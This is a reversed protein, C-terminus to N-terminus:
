YLYFGYLWGKHGINIAKSYNNRGWTPTLIIRNDIIDKVVWTREKNDVLLSGEALDKLKIRTNEDHKKM